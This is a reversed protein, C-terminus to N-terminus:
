GLRGWAIAIKSTPTLDWRTIVIKDLNTASTSEIVYDYIAARSHSRFQACDEKKKGWLIKKSRRLTRSDRVNTCLYWQVLFRGYTCTLHVIFSGYWASLNYCPNAVLRKDRYPVSTTRHSYQHCVSDQIDEYSDVSIMTM